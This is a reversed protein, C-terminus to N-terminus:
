LAAWYTLILSNSFADASQKFAYAAADVEVAAQLVRRLGEPTGDYGNLAGNLGALAFRYSDSVTRVEATPSVLNVLDYQLDEVSRAVASVTVTDPLVPTGANAASFVSQAAEAFAEQSLEVNALQADFAALTATRQASWDHFIWTILTLGLGILAFWKWQSVCWLLGRGVIVYWKTDPDVTSKQM